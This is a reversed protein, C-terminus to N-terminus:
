DEATATWHDSNRDNFIAFVTGNKVATALVTYSNSDYPVKYNTGATSGGGSPYFVIYMYLWETGTAKLDKVQIKRRVYPASFRCPLCSLVV